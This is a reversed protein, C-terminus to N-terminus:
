VIKTVRDAALIGARRSLFPAKPLFAAVVAVTSFAALDFPLARSTSM